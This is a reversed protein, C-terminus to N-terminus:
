LIRNRLFIKRYLENSECTKFGYTQEKQKSQKAHLELPFDHPGGEHIKTKTELVFIDACLGEFLYKKM